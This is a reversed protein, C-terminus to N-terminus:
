AFSLLEDFSKLIKKAGLETLEQPSTIGHSVGFMDIGANKGVEVDVHSDGIMLISENEINLGLDSVIFEVCGRAPKEFESTGNGHISDFLHRIEFTELVLEIQEKPKVSLIATKKNKEKLKKVTELAGPFFKLEEKVNQNLRTIYDERLEQVKRESLEPYFELITKAISLKGIHPYINELPIEPLNNKKFASNLSKAINDKSDALTGDFDFIFLSYIM